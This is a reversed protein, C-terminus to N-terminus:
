FRFNRIEKDVNPCICSINLRPVDMGHAVRRLLEGGNGTQQLLVPQAGREKIRAVFTNIARQSCVGSEYQLVVTDSPQVSKLQQRLPVHKDSDLRDVISFIWTGENIIRPNSLSVKM